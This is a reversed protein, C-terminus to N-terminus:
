NEFGGVGGGSSRIPIDSVGERGFVGGIQEEGFIFGVVFVQPATGVGGGVDFVGEVSVQDLVFGACDVRGFLAGFGGGEIIGFDWGAFGDSEAQAEGLRM